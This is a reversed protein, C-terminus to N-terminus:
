VTYKFNVPGYIRGTESITDPYTAGYISSDITIEAASTYGGASDHWYDSSEQSGIRYYGPTLVAPTIAGFVYGDSTPPAADITCSGLLSGADSWLGVLHTATNAALCYRGLESVTITTSILVRVGVIGGYDNRTSGFPGNTFAEILSGGGGATNDLGNVTKVSAIALGMATKVSAIALGGVTKVLQAM